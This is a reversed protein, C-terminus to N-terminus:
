EYKGEDTALQEAYHVEETDFVIFSCQIYCVSIESIWYLPAWKRVLFRLVTRGRILTRPQVERLPASVKLVEVM